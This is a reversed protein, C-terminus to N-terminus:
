SNVKLDKTSKSLLETSSPCETSTYKVPELKKEEELYERFKMM